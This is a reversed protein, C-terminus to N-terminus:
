YKEGRGAGRRLLFRGGAPLSGFEEETRDPWRVRVPGSEREAGLGFFLEPFSQGLYSGGAQVERLQRHSGSRLTVRAGIARRNTGPQELKVVLPAPGPSENSLLLPAAGNRTAILDIKGDRNWDAAAAARGVAPVPIIGNGFPAVQVFGAAGGRNRFYQDPMEILKSPDSRNQFTSGNTVFLDLLGDGDFDEFVAGWGVFDLTSQGLGWQDASDVFHLAGAVTRNIYLANEQAIWHTIALDPQGDGDVDGTALGMAGRYDAVGASHSVDEFFGDHTNRYLVNDSVDNAVYLDPWGDDDFDCWIASFSRGGSNDVGREAAIEEFRGGGLNRYLLNREPKYSSPNLTFPTEEGYQPAKKSLDGKRLEYKVYGCVYLDLRGDGDFDAAAAGTWFGRIGGLGSERTRNSFHGGDNHFYLNEGFTTVFLDDRGDGDADFWIAGIGAGSWSLGSSETVDQFTGNGNNRYLRNGRLKALSSEKGGLPGAFDVLFLDPLGDGDFDGWAAGSGVDEPLQTSRKGGAFHVFDIGAATTRDAFRISASSERSRDLENTIGEVAGGPVYSDHRRMLMPSLALAM